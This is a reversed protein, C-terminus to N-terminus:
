VQPLELLHLDPSSPAFMFLNIACHCVLKREDHLRREHQRLFDRHVM